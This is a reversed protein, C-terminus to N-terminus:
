IRWGALKTYGACVWPTATVFWFISIPICFWTWQKWINGFGKQFCLFGCSNDGDQHVPVHQIIPAFCLAVKRGVEPPGNGNDDFSDLNNAQKQLSFTIWVQLLSLYLSSFHLLNFSTSTKAESRWFTITSQKLTLSWCFCPFFVYCNSINQHLIHKLVLPLSLMGGMQLFDTLICVGFIASIMKSGSSGLLLPCQSIWLSNFVTPAKPLSCHICRPVGWCPEFMPVFNKCASFILADGPLLHKNENVMRHTKAAAFQFMRWIHQNMMMWPNTNRVSPLEHPRCGGLIRIANSM